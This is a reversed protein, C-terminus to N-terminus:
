HQFLRPRCFRAPHPSRPPPHPVADLGSSIRVNVGGGKKACFTRVNDFAALASTMDDEDVGHPIDEGLQHRYIKATGLLCEFAEKQRDPQYPRTSFSPVDDDVEGVAAATSPEAEGGGGTIENFYEVFDDYHSIIFLNCGKM